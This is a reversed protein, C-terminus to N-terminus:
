RGEFRRRLRDEMKSSLASDKGDARPGSSSTKQQGPLGYVLMAVGAVMALFGIVAVAIGIAPVALTATIAGATLLLLGAVAVAGAMVPKRRRMRTVDVASAFKPDEQFLAQEIADFMQQEHESLAM